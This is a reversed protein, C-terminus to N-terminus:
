DRRSNKELSCIRIRNLIHKAFSSDRGYYEDVVHFNKRKKHRIFHRKSVGSEIKLCDFFAYLTGYIYGMKGAIKMMTTEEAKLYAKYQEPTTIPFNIIKDETM